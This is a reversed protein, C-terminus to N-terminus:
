TDIIALLGGGVGFVASAGFANRPLIPEWLAVTALGAVTALCLDIVAEAVASNSVLAASPVVTHEGVIPRDVIKATNRDRIDILFGDDYIRICCPDAEISATASRRNPGRRFLLCCRAFLVYRSNRRLKLVLSRRASVLSEKGSFVM